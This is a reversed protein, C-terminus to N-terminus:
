GGLYKMPDVYQDYLNKIRLDLHTGTGGSNSYTQGSNGMGGLIDGANIQQGVKIPVYKSSLHSYRFKNGQADTVIVYNGFDPSGQVQGTRVDTVTGPAVAPIPTEPAAALDVGPHASEFKTSGMYPTTLTGLNKFRESLPVSAQSAQASKIAPVINKFRQEAKNLSAGLGYATDTLGKYTQNQPLQTAM